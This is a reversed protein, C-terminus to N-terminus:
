LFRNNKNNKVKFRIKLNQIKSDKVKIFKFIGIKITIKIFVM